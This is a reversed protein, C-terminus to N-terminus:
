SANYEGNLMRDHKILAETKNKLSHQKCVRKWAKDSKQAAVMGSTLFDLWLIHLANEITEINPKM